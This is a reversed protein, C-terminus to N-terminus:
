SNNQPMAKGGLEDSSGTGANADISQKGASVAANLLYANNSCFLAAGFSNCRSDFHLYGATSAMVIASAMNGGATAGDGLLANVFSCNEFKIWGIVMSCRVCAATTQSSRSIFSCDEFYSYRPYAGNSIAVLMVNGSAATHYVTSNGVQCNKYHCTDGAFLLGQTVTTLISNVEMGCNECYTGEGEDIMGSTQAANTGNQIIKLNRFTNRTGTNKIVAVSAVVDTAPTTIKAGQSNKRGGGDMGYFHCRNKSITQMAQSHSGHAALMMVDNQNSIMAAYALAFTNYVAPIHGGVENEYDPHENKFNAYGVDSTKMVFFVRGTVNKKALRIAEPDFLREKVADAIKDTFASM